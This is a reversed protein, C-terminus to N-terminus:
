KMGLKKKIEKLEEPSLTPHNKRWNAIRCKGNNPCFIHWERTALFVSGCYECNRKIPKFKKM